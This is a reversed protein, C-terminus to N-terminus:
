KKVDGPASTAGGTAPASSDTKGDGAAGAPPNKPKNPDQIPFEGELVVPEDLGPAYVRLTLRLIEVPKKDQQANNPDSVEIPERVIVYEWLYDGYRPRGSAPDFDVEAFDGNSQSPPGAWLTKDLELEAMKQAALVWASRLDRARAADRVVQLRQDLLVVATIGIIALAIMVEVLTFGRRGRNHGRIKM